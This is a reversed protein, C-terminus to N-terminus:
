PYEEVLVRINEMEEDLNGIWVDRIEVMKGDPGPYIGGGGGKRSPEPEDDDAPAGMPASYFPPALLPAVARHRFVNPFIVDVHTKAMM